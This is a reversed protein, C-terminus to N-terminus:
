IVVLGAVKVKKLVNHQMMPIKRTRPVNISIASPSIVSDSLFGDSFVIRYL